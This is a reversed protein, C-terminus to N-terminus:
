GYRIEETNIKVVGFRYENEKCYKNLSEVEQNALNKNIYLKLPIVTIGNVEYTMFFIM